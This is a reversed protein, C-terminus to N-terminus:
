KNPCLSLGNAYSKNNILNKLNVKKDTFIYEYLENIIYSAENIVDNYLDLFSKNSINKPNDVNHWKKHNLNLYFIDNNLNFHYSLYKVRPISKFPNLDIFQYVKKKIGYKDHRIYNYVFKMEKLARYYKPGINEYNFINKYLKNLENEIIEKKKYNFIFKTNNYKKYDIHMKEKIFYNDIYTETEFHGNLKDKSIYNIYPHITSDAIYHTILGAIFTFLELDKNQKNDNILLEFVEYVKENHFRHGLDIIKNNALLLLHYFYLVDMSQCYIKYNDINKKIIRKPKDNLKNLTDLGIYAHTITSPM